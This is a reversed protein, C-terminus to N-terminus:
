HLLIGFLVKIEFKIKFNEFIEGFKFEVFFFKWKILLALIDEENKRRFKKNELM